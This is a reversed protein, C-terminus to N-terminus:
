ELSKRFRFGAGFLFALAMASLVSFQLWLEALGQGCKASVGLVSEKREQRIKQLMRELDDKGVLDMKNVVIITRGAGLMDLTQWQSGNIGAAADVVYLVLDARRVAEM